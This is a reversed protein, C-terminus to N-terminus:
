APFSFRPTLKVLKLVKYVDVHVGRLSVKVAKEDAAGALKELAGIASPDIRRVSSLDLAVERGAGDLKALAQEILENATM